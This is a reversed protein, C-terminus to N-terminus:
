DRTIARQSLQPRLAGFLWSSFTAVAIPNGLFLALFFLFILSKAERFSAFKQLLPLVDLLRCCCHSAAQLCFSFQFDANGLHFAIIKEFKEL